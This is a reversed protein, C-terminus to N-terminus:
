IHILSLSVAMYYETGVQTKAISSVLLGSIGFDCIKVSGSRSLLINSPKVDRHMVNLDGMETKLYNLAKLVQYCLFTTANSCPQAFKKHPTDFMIRTLAKFDAYM